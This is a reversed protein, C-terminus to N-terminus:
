GNTDFDSHQPLCKIGSSRGSAVRGMELSPVQEVLSEFLSLPQSIWMPSIVGITNGPQGMDATKCWPDEKKM